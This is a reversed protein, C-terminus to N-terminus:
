SIQWVFKRVKKIKGRSKMPPPISQFVKGPHLKSFSELLEYNIIQFTDQDDWHGRFRVKDGVRIRSEPSKQAKQILVEGVVDMKMVTCIRNEADDILDYFCIKRSLRRLHVVQGEVDGETM